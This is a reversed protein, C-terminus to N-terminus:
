GHCKKECKEGNQLKRQFYNPSFYTNQKAYQRKSSKFSSNKNQFFAYGKDLYKKRESGNENLKLPWLAPDQYLFDLFLLSGIL